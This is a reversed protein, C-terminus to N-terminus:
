LILMADGYSYFRYERSVAEKYANMIFNKGGFACVLMLLTSKPLHFNTLLSDVLRFRYGPYVFLNTCGSPRMIEGRSGAASELTRVSTTGVAIIRRGMKKGEDITLGAKEDIQYFEKGMQHDEVTLVRVPEFTGYGIHLTVTIVTIGKQKIKELLSETFHLGATPAAVSGKERAYVTQYSDKDQEHFPAYKPGYNRKIYPPLPVYGYKSFAEDINGDCEFAIVGRDSKKEIIKAKLEGNGFLIKTEPKVRALPRILAEWINESLHNILLVEIKGGTNEKEGILRAPIVKTNNVVLIDTEKLYDAINYFRTHTVTKEKRDLVMLRSQERDKEPFQAILNEPLAYDFESVNM